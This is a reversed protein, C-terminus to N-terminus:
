NHTSKAAENRNQADCELVKKIGKKLNGKKWRRM